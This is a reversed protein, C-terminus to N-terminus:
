EKGSSTARWAHVKDGVRVNWAQAANGERLSFEVTDNSGILALPQGVNVEGYAQKLGQLTRGNVRFHWEGESSQLLHAPINTVINGFRDIHVVIGEISGDELVRPTPWSLRILTEPDIRSGLATLPVGRALYAAVPAFIDRGHFTRSVPHRWYTPNDLKVAELAHERQLVPTLLGNDPAVYYARDTRVVIAYRETGVGPDVVGVHISQPPFYRTATDMVYAGRWVDQPPIEHTVDVLHVDPTISLIVGKMAGVYADQTGFDTTLTIVRPAPM